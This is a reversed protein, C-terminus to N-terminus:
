CAEGNYVIYYVTRCGYGGVYGCLNWKEGCLETYTNDTYYEWYIEYQPMAFLSTAGVILLAM